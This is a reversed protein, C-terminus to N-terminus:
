EQLQDIIQKLIDKIAQDIKSNDISDKSKRLLDMRDSDDSRKKVAAATDLSEQEVRKGKLSQDISFSYKFMQVDSPGSVLEAPLCEEAPALGVADKPYDDTSQFFVFAGSADIGVFKKM